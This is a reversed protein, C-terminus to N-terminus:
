RKKHPKKRTHGKVRIRKYHAKTRGDKVLVKRTHGKVRIRTGAKKRGRKRPRGVKKKAM